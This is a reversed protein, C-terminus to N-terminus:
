GDGEAIDRLPKFAAARAYMIHLRYGQASAQDCGNDFVEMAEADSLASASVGADERNVQSRIDEITALKEAETAGAWDSCQALHAVSGGLEQGVPEAEGAGSDEGSADGGCGALALAAALALLGGAGLESWPGPISRM